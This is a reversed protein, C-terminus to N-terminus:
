DVQPPPDLFIGGAENGLCWQLRGRLVEGKDLRLEILDGERLDDFHEIRFGAASVDRVTVKCQHDDSSVLIASYEVGIRASRV